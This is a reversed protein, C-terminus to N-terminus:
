IRFFNPLVKGNIVFGRDHKHEVSYLIITRHSEISSCRDWQIKHVVTIELRYQELCPVISTQTETWYMLRVNWNRICLDLHELNWVM